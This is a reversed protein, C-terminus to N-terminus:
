YVKKLDSLEIASNFLSDPVLNEVEEDLAEDNPSLGKQQAIANRFSAMISITLISLTVTKVWESKVDNPM